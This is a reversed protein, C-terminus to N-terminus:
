TATPKWPGWAGKRRATEIAEPDPLQNRRHVLGKKYFEVRKMLRGVVDPFKTSLDHREEPDATINFLAVGLKTRNIM